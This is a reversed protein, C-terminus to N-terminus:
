FHRIKKLINLANSNIQLFTELLMLKKAIKNNNIFSPKIAIVLEIEVISKRIKGSSFVHKGIV